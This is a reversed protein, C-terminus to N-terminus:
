VFTHFALSESDCCCCRRYLLVHFWKSPVCCCSNLVSVHCWGYQFLDWLGDRWHGVPVQIIPTICDEERPLPVPFKQGATVGGPPVTVVFTRNGFTAPFTYGEALNGPAMVEVMPQQQKRWPSKRLLRSFVFHWTLLECSYFM